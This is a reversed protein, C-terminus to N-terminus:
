SEGRAARAAAVAQARLAPLRARDQDLKLQRGEISKELAEVERELDWARKQVIVGAWGKVVAFKM